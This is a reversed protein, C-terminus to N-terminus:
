CVYHRRTGMNGGRNWLATVVGENAERDQKVFGSGAIWSLFM